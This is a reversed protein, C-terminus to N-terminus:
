FLKLVDKMTIFLMLGLLILMGFQHIMNETKPNVRSGKIKEIFLFLARGGDFAPFPILNIFGVNISLYALLYMLGELGAQRQQGVISYIGVPGSLANLGLQGTFLSKITVIMSNYLSGFKSTAYKLSNFLGYNKTMDLGMGYSYSVEKNKDEQRVPKIKVIKEKNDKTLLTLTSEKKKNALAFKLTVDDWTRVRKGDIRMLTDGVVIGANSAASSPAVVGIVPKTNVSGYVLAMFFLVVFGLVFNNFAGAIVIILRKIWPKNYMKKEKSVSTDDDVEEGAMAVYGGIPILRLCYETEDKKRKFSFLKPGFGISFEYIYVGSKKATIFHGLEHIFVIIGLMLIFCILTM